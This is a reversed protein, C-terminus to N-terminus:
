TLYTFCKILALLRMMSVLLYKFAMARFLIVILALHLLQTSTPLFNGFSHKNLTIASCYPLGLFTYFRWFFVFKEGRVIMKYSVEFFCNSVLDVVFMTGTLLM